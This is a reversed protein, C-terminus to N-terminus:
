SRETEAQQKAERDEMDIAISQLLILESVADRSLLKKGPRPSMLIDRISDIVGPQGWSLKLRRLLGPNERELASLAGYHQLEEDFASEPDYRFELAKSTAQPIVGVPNLALREPEGTAEKADVLPALSEFEHDEAKGLVTDGGATSGSTNLDIPTVAGPAQTKARRRSWMEILLAVLIIPLIFSLWEGYANTQEARRNEREQATRVSPALPRAVPAKKAATEAADRAARAEQLEQQMREVMASLEEVRRKLVVSEVEVDAASPPAGHEIDQSGRSVRLQPQFAPTQTAPPRPRNAIKSGSGKKASSDHSGTGKSRSVTSPRSSPANIPPEVIQRAVRTEGFPSEGAIVEPTSHSVEAISSGIGPPDFLLTYQRQITDTCGVQVTVALLPDYIPRSTAVVLQVGGADRQLSVRGTTLHPIDAEFRDGTPGILKACDSSLNNVAGEGADSVIIPIVIRLPEGLASQQTIDSLGIANAVEIGGLAALLGLTVSLLRRNAASSSLAEPWRHSLVGRKVRDFMVIAKPKEFQLSGANPFAALTGCM